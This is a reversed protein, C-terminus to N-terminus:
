AAERAHRIRQAESRSRNIGAECVWHWVAVHSCGLEAAIKRPSLGSAYLDLARQQTAPDDGVYRHPRTGEEHSFGAERLAQEWSGFLNFVTRQSPWEPRREREPQGRHRAHAPSWDTVRPPHGFEAAFDRIAETVTEPTWIVVPHDSCRKPPGDGGGHSLPVGCVECTPNGAWQLKRCDDSCYRRNGNTTPLPNSCGERACIRETM